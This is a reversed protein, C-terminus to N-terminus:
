SVSGWDREIFWNPSWKVLDLPDFLDETIAISKLQAPLISLVHSGSDSTYDYMHYRSSQDKSRRSPGYDFPACIRELTHGDEKSYFTICIKKKSHLATMFTDHM